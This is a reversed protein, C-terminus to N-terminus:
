NIISPELKQLIEGLNQLTKLKCPCSFLQSTRADKIKLMMHLVLTCYRASLIGALAIALGLITKAIMSQTDGSLSNFETKIEPKNCPKGETLIMQLVFHTFILSAM